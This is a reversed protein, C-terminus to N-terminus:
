LFLFILLRLTSSSRSLYIKGPHVSLTISFLSQPGVDPGADSVSREEIGLKDQVEEGDEELEADGSGLTVQEDDGDEAFHSATGGVLMGEQLYRRRLAALKELRIITRLMQVLAKFRSSRCWPEKVAKIHKSETISSCLGNPSGFLVISTLYHLLAHQRPLSISSRVGERIFVERLILFQDVLQQATNLVTSSITNRRFIYCMEMFVSM